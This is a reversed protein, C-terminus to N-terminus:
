GRQAVPLDQRLVVSPRLGAHNQLLHGIGGDQIQHLLPRDGIM